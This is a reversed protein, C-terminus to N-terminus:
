RRFGRRLLLQSLDAAGSNRITESDLVYVASPSDTIVGSRRVDRKIYSGTLATDKEVIAGPPVSKTQKETAPKAPATPKVKDAAIAGMAAFGVTLAILLTRTKM